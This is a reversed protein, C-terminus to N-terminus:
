PEAAPEALAAEVEAMLPHVRGISRLLAFDGRVAEEWTLGNSLTVGRHRLFRDRAADTQGLYMEALALNGAATLNGPDRELAERAAESAAVEEGALVAFYSLQVLQHSLLQELAPM